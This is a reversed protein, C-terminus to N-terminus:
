LFKRKIHSDDINIVNKCDIKSNIKKQHKLENVVLLAFFVIMVRFTGYDGTFFTYSFYGVLLLVVSKQMNKSKPFFKKVNRLLTVVFGTWIVIGMIGNNCLIQILCSEFSLMIPHRGITSRYWGTWGYGHGMIPNDKISDICGELQEIRMNISSGRANENGISELLAVFSPMFRQILLWAVFLMIAFSFFMNFRRQQLLFVLVVIVEALLVSRSGCVIVCVLIMGYLVKPVFSKDREMQYLLFVSSFILFVGYETVYTYVSSIYGFQRIGEELITDQGFDNNSSVWQSLSDIYPNQGIRTLLFFTYLSSVAIAIYLVNVVMKQSETKILVLSVIVFPLILSTLDLRLANLQDVLPMESFHFPILLTQTFFVLFFPMMLKASAKNAGWKNGTWVFLALLLILFFLNRGMSFTEIVLAYIPVLFFYLLYFSVGFEFKVFILLLVAISLISVFTIM